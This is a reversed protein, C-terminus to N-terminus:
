TSIPESWCEARPQDRLVLEHRLIPVDAPAEIGLRTRNGDITLVSIVINDGIRIGEGLKRSLVLM